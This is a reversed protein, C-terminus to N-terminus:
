SGDKNAESFNDGTNQRLDHRTDHLSEASKQKSLKQTHNVAKVLKQHETMQQSNHHSTEVRGINGNEIGYNSALSGVDQSSYYTKLNTLSKTLPVQM